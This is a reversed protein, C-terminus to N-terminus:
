RGHEWIHELHLRTSTLNEYLTGMQGRLHDPVVDRLARAEDSLAALRERYWEVDTQVMIPEGVDFSAGANQGPFEDGAPMRALIQGLPRIAMTM